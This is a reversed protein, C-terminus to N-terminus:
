QADLPPMGYMAIRHPHHGPGGGRCAFRMTMQLPERPSGCRCCRGKPYQGHRMETWSVGQSVVMDTLQISLEGKEIMRDDGQRVWRIAAFVPSFMATELSANVRGPFFAVADRSEIAAVDTWSM